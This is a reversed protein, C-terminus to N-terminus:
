KLGGMQTRIPRVLVALVLGAALSLVAVWSFLASQSFSATLVVSQGALFNALANGLFWIGMIQGAARVPALKTVMSLGVPSICLEAITNLFFVGVLWLPSVRQGTEASLRAAQAMVLFSLGIVVLAVAFKAPSSPERNGLRVWLWAFVPSLAIILIPNVFQFWASPFVYGLVQNRTNRDAFLNLTGGGQEFATFFLTSFVFLVAVVALRKKELPSFGGAVFMATFYVVPTIVLVAGLAGSLLEVTIPLVGSAHGAALLAGVGALLTVVGAVTRRQRRAADPDAPPQPRRGVDGLYRRGWVYQTLGFFMGVAAAGFGLHWSERPDIGLAALFERFRVDQALFGCVLSAFFAGTNIGMYYISFGADRRPDDPAYLQGVMSSMNPKLLGTGVILLGLGTFFFSLGHLALCIHGCMIIVGGVFV